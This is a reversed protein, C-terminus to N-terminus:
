MEWTEYTSLLEDFNRIATKGQVESIQNYVADDYTEEDVNRIVGM